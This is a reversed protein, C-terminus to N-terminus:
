VLRRKPEILVIDTVTGGNPKKKEAISKAESWDYAQVPFAFKKGDGYFGRIQWRKQIDATAVM